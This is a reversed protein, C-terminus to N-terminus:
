KHIPTRSAVTSSNRWRYPDYPTGTKLIGYTVTAIYRAIEHRAHVEAVGRALLEEYYERVPNHGRLAALAATKYVAKLTRCFQPKRRGYSRGGSFKGNTVLGCYNLYKGSRPFRRADVVIALIKVASITNIGHVPLLLKLLENRRCFEQFQAIYTKKSERYLDINKNLHELIFAAYTTEDGHGRALASRQNIARVGAQVIDRYASVLLRLEYVGDDSHFVEKLLGARLLLALKGADIKDNKPGESLLRNRVPDCIVIRDVCDRLELYLWQATTTEEFTLAISGKLTKLYEKLERLNTPREFVKPIEMTRPLHGIAMTLEAWDLSVCHNFHAFPASQEKPTHKRKSPRSIVNSMSM